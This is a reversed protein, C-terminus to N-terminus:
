WLGNYVDEVLYEVTQPIIRVREVDAPVSYMRLMVKDSLGELIDNYDVVVAFDQETVVDYESMKVWFVVEVRSPFSKLIKGQPFNVGQVPITLSKETYQSSCLTLVVEDNDAYVGPLSKLKASVVVTDADLGVSALDVYLADVSGASETVFVDVSDPTTYYNDMIYQNKSETVGEYFVPLRELRQEEYLFSLTDPEISRIVTGITIFNQISDRVFQSSLVARGRTMKYSLSNIELVKEKKRSSKWLALGKGNLTVIVKDTASGTLRVNDPVDVIQVPIQMSYEYNRSMKQAFWFFFTIVLFLLFISFEGGFIKQLLVGIKKLMNAMTISFSRRAKM